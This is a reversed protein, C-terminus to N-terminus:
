ILDRIQQRKATSNDYIEKFLDSLNKGEFLEINRYDDM